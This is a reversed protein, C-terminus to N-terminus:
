AGRVRKLSWKVVAEVGALTSEIVVQESRRVGGAGGLYISEAIALRGGAVDLRFGTRTATRLLAAKGDHVLSAQVDPHLHFRIAFALPAEGARIRALRDEGRLDDGEAALYLRRRHLVGFPPEYGDHSADVLVAGDAEERRALVHRPRRGIRGTQEGRQSLFDSSNTDALVLTSHAATARQATLWDGTAYPRAGCNVIIREKGCSFEFSLTGAHAYAESEPPPPPGTDMLVLSGGSEIRQFGTHPASLPPKGPADARKLLEDIAAANGEQTHNFLALRGDGHRFFRLMPAMRDIAAQLGPPVALRAALLTARLRVLAELMARHLAPSRQYHGGDPLVQRDLEAVFFATPRTLREAKGPLASAAAVLAILAELRGHGAPGLRDGGLRALRGLHRLQRAMSRMLYRRFGDSAGDALFPYGALWGVLRNGLVDARWALPSWEGYREIWSEVLTRAEARAADSGLAALDALWRFGHLEVLVPGSANPPAPPAAAAPPAASAMAAASDPSADGSVEPAVPAAPAVPAPPDPRFPNAAALREGALQWEGALIARGKAADGAPGEVAASPRVPTAGLLLLRYPASAFFLGALRESARRRLRSLPSGTFDAAGSM